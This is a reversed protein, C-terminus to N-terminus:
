DRIPRWYAYAYAPAFGIRAYLARAPANAQEVQLFLRKVGRRGIEGVLAALVRLALGERRRALVTRMGHLGAWGGDAAAAGIAVTEGDARVEAYVADEARALTAARLGGEVPDFGSGLFVARWAEDAERRLDAPEVGALAAAVQGVPAVLVDTPQEPALGRAALAAQMGDPRAFDSVRVCAPLGAEAFFAFARDLKRDLPDRGARLPVVSNARGVAGANAALLWGDDEELVLPPLARFTAREIAEVDAPDIV